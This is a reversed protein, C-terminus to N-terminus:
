SAVQVAIDNVSRATPMAEISMRIGRVDHDTRDQKRELTTLRAGLADLKTDTVPARM